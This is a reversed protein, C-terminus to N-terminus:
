PPPDGWPGFVVWLFLAFAAIAVVAVIIGVTM